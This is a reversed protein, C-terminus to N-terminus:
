PERVNLIEEVFKILCSVLIFYVFVFVLIVFAEMLLYLISIPSFNLIFYISQSIHKFILGLIFSNGAIDIIIVALLVPYSVLPNCVSIKKLNKLFVAISLVISIILGLYQGNNETFIEM